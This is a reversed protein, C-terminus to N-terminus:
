NWCKPPLPLPIESNTYVLWGPRCLSESVLFVCLSAMEFLWFLCVLGPSTSSPILVTHYCFPLVLLCQLACLLIIINPVTPHDSHVCHSTCFSFLLLVSPTSWSIIAAPKGFITFAMLSVDLFNLPSWAFHLCSCASM